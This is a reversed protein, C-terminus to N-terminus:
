IRRLYKGCAAVVAEVGISKLCLRTECENLFFPDPWLMKKLVIHNESWFYWAGPYDRSSYIGVVPTGVAGALPIPGGAKFGPLYQDCITLIRLAM